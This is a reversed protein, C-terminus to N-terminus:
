PVEQLIDGKSWGGGLAKYLSLLAQFRALRVQALLDLDSFLTTQAQLATVIDVTGALLQARAIDAARQATAVAVRELAEQETTYRYATIANEVDTFGQVVTKRYDALLEDYRARAFDLNAQRQGNDFITQTASAAASAFLSGPGFLLPLAINQWGASGSLSIQPFFAARAVKINAGQAALQAEASAIDPRRTLLRSPVDAGIEPLALATLTGPRVTIASPPRGTLIGLGNIQQEMQNRLNPQLTRLGAVLAAQQAVDLQSATGVTERAQIAALIQEADQVNRASVDLRDQLALAQFWTSAVASVVTLTVSQQDFRSALATAQAANRGSSVRGWFDLEWTVTPSLNYNRTEYYVGTPQSGATGVRRVQSVRNWSDKGTASVSPLLAAGAIAAQADAQRVRAMAADLDFNATRAAAILGDLEASGFGRWWEPAPWATAASTPTARYAAPVELAADPLAVPTCGALVLGLGVLQLRRIIM